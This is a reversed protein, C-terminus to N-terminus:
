LVEAHLRTQLTGVEVVGSAGGECNESIFVFIKGVSPPASLTGM